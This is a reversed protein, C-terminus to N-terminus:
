LECDSEEFRKSWEAEPAQVPSPTNKEILKVAAVKVDGGSKVLAEIAELRTFGMNELQRINNENYVDIADDAEDTTGFRRSQSISSGAGSRQRPMLTNDYDVVFSPLIGALSEKSIYLYLEELDDVYQIKKYCEEIGQYILMHTKLLVTPHLIYLRHLARRHDVGLAAHLDRIFTVNPLSPLRVGSHIYVINYGRFSFLVDEMSRVALLIMKIKESESMKSPTYHAGVIILSPRGLYDTDDLKTIVNMSMVEHLDLKRARLLCKRHYEEDDSSGSLSKWVSYAVDFIDGDRGPLSSPSENRFKSKKKMKDKDPSPSMTLFRKDDFTHTAASSTKHHWISTSPSSTHDDETPRKDFSHRVPTSMRTPGATIRKNNNCLIRAFM